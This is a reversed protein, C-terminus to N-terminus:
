IPNPQLPTKFRNLQPQITFSALTKSSSTTLLSNSQISVSNTKQLLRFFDERWFMFYILILFVITKMSVMNRNRFPNEVFRWTLYSVCLIALILILCTFNDLKTLSYFRAFVFVPQHILYASYSVLGIWVFPKTSLLKGIVTKENTFVIILGTGITPLLTFFSPNPM